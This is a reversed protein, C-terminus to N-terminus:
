IEDIFYCYLCEAKLLHSGIAIIGLLSITITNEM